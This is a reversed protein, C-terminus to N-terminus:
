SHLLVSFCSSSGLSTRVLLLTNQHGNRNVLYKCRQRLHVQTLRATLAEVHTIHLGTDILATGQFVAAVVSKPKAGNSTHLRNLLELSYFAQQLLQYDHVHMQIHGVAEQVHLTRYKNLVRCTETRPGGDTDMPSIVDDSPLFSFLNYV